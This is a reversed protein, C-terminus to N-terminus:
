KDTRSCESAFILGRHRHTFGGVTSTVLSPGGVSVLPRAGLQGVPGAGDGPAVHDAGGAPLVPGPLAGGPRGEVNTSSRERPRGDVDWVGSIAERGRTWGSM